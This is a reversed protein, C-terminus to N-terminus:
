QLSLLRSCHHCSSPNYYVTFMHRIHRMQIVKGDGSTAFPSSCWDSCEFGTLLWIMKPCFIVSPLAKNISLAKMFEWFIWWRGKNLLLLSTSVHLYVFPLLVTICLRDAPLSHTRNKFTDALWFYVFFCQQPLWAEMTNYHFDYFVM